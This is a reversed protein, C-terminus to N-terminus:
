RGMCNLSASRGAPRFTKNLRQVLNFVKERESEGLNSKPRM